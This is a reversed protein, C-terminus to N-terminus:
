SAFSETRLQQVRDRWITPQWPLECLVLVGLSSDGADRQDLYQGSMEVREHFVQFGVDFRDPIPFLLCPQNFVVADEQVTRFGIWIVPVNAEGDAVLVESGEVAKRLSNKIETHLLIAILALLLLHDVLTHLVSSCDSTDQGAVNRQLLQVTIQAANGNESVRRWKETIANGQPWTGFCLVVPCVSV